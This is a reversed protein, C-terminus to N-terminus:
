NKRQTRKRGAPKPKSGYEAELRALYDTLEKRAPAPLHGYKARLYPSLAPLAEAGTTTYGAAQFLESADIGLAEALRNLTTPTPLKEGNEIRSIAARSVGSNAELQKVSLGAELRRKRLLAALQQHPTTMVTGM